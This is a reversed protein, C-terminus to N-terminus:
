LELASAGADDQEMDMKLAEMKPRCLMILESISNNGQQAFGSPPRGCAFCTPAPRAPHLDHGRELRQGGIEVRLNTGVRGPEELREQIGWKVMQRTPSSKHAWFLLVQNVEFFFQGTTLGHPSLNHLVVLNHSELGPREM